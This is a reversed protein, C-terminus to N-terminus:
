FNISTFLMSKKLFLYTIELANTFINVAKVIEPKVFINVNINLFFFDKQTKM